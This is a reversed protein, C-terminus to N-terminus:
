ISLFIINLTFFQQQKRRKYAKLANYAAYILEILRLTAVIM